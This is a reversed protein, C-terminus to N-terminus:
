IETWCLNFDSAAVTVDLSHHTRDAILTETQCLLAMAVDCATENGGSFEHRICTMRKRARRAIKVADLVKVSTAQKLREAKQENGKNYPWCKWLQKGVKM